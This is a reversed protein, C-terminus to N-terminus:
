ICHILHEILYTHMYTYSDEYYALSIIYYVLMKEPPVVEVASVSKNVAALLLCIMKGRETNSNITYALIYKWPKHYCGSM